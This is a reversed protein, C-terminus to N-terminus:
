ESMTKYTALRSLKVPEVPVQGDAPEENHDLEDGSGAGVVRRDANKGNGGCGHQEGNAEFEKDDVGKADSANPCGASDAGEGHACRKSGADVGVNFVDASDVSGAARLESLTQIQSVLSALGEALHKV